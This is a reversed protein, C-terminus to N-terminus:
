DRFTCVWRKTNYSGSSLTFFITSWNGTEQLQGSIVGTATDLTLGIPLYNVGYLGPDVDSPIIFDIVDGVENVLEDPLQLEAYSPQAMILLCLLLPLSRLPMAPFLPHSPIRLLNHVLIDPLLCYYLLGLSKNSM